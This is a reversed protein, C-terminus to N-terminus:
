NYLREGRRVGENQKPPQCMRRWLTANM